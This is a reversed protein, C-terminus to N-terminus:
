RDLGLLRAPAGRQDGGGPRDPLLTPRTVRAPQRVPDGRRARGRPDPRGDRGQALEPRNEWLLNVVAATWGALFGLGWLGTVSALQTLVPLGFQTASASMITGLPTFSVAYDVALYVSPYVLSALGRPLRRHLARDAYLAAFFAVPRLLSFVPYMWADLDWGGAMQLYSAAALLPIAPLTSLWRPRDRFFRILFIPAIWSALPVNFRWGLFAFTGSGIILWVWSSVRKWIRSSEM